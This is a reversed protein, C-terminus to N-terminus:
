KYDLRGSGKYPCIVFRTSENIDEEFNLYSNSGYLVYKMYIGAGFVKPALVFNPALNHTVFKDIAITGASTAMGVYVAYKEPFLVGTACSDEMFQVDVLFNITKNKNYIEIAVKSPHKICNDAKDMYDQLKRKGNEIEM